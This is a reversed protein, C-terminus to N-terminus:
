LDGDEKLLRLEVSYKFVTLRLKKVIRYARAPKNSDLFEQLENAM